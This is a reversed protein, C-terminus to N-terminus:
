MKISVEQKIPKSSSDKIAKITGKITGKITILAATDVAEEETIDEVAVEEVEEEMDMAAEEGKTAEVPTAVTKNSM